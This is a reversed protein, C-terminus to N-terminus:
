QEFISIKVFKATSQKKNMNILDTLEFYRLCKIHELHIDLSLILGFLMIILFSM